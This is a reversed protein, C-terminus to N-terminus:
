VKPKECCALSRFNVETSSNSEGKGRKKGDSRGSKLMVRLLKHNLNMCKSYFPICLGGAGVRANAM